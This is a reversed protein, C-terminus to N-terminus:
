WTRTEELTEVAVDMIEGSGEGGKGAAREEGSGLTLWEGFFGSDDDGGEGGENVREQLRWGVAVWKLPHNGWFGLWKLPHNGGDVGVWKLPHGGWGGV